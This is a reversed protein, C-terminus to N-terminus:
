YEVKMLCLGQAPATPGALRRDRAELIRLMDRPTLKGRGIEVLTGVLNRVMHHLFGSGCVEYSLLALRPRWVIRSSFITRVNSPSSTTQNAPLTDPGEVEEGGGPSAAFSTFDHEGAVLRAAEAMAGQSLEYPYHWVFRGLFPSCVPTQLIRYRYTKSRVTYRAHFDDAVEQAARVRVTPPLVDNLAKVLNRPPIASCTKFNAVQGFAHVGADTRGSGCIRVSEGLMRGLTTELCGQITPRDPQRQWGSFDTGDYSLEIRINRM